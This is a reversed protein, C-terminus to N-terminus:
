RIIGLLRVRHPFMLLYQANILYYFKIVRLDTSYKDLNGDRKKNIRRQIEENQPIQETKWVFRVKGLGLNIM